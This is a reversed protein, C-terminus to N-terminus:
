STLNRALPQIVYNGAKKKDGGASIFNAKACRLVYDSPPEGFAATTLSTGALSSLPQGGRGVSGAWLNMATM